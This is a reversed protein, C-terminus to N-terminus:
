CSGVPAAPTAPTLPLPKRLGEVERRWRKLARAWLKRTAGLSRGVARAVEEFPRGQFFRLAIVERYGRPLRPLAERLAAEEERRVARGSPSTSDSSLREVLTAGRAGSDLSQERSLRGRFRALATLAQRRLIRSVWAVLEGETVGRFGPFGRAAALYTDQVLDSTSVKARLAAPWVREALGLLRPYLAELLEGLAERGGVRAARLLRELDPPSSTTM